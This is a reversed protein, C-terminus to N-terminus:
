RPPAPGGSLDAFDRPSITFEEYHYPLHDLEEGKGRPEHHARICVWLVIDSGSTTDLPGVAYLSELASDTCDAGVDAGQQVNDGRYVTVWLDGTSYKGDPAATQPLEVEYGRPQAQANQSVLDRVRWKRATKLQAQRKSQKKILTWQDGSPDNLTNHDFEECVDSQFGDIDLDLRFYFNHIHATAPAFPNLQGGMAVRPHIVGNGDFEWSQVYQYWGCQFKATITLTAAHFDDGGDTKVVVADTDVGADWAASKWPAGSNPAGHRLSRFAAGGCQENVGDKYSHEPGPPENGPHPRHYPVIAFPSSGRWLVRKNQFDAWWVELGGGKFDPIRWYVSWGAGSVLHYDGYKAM